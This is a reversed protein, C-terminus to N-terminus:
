SSPEDDGPATEHVAELGDLLRQLRDVRVEFVANRHLQRALPILEPDGLEAEEFQAHYAEIFALDADRSAQWALDSAELAERAEGGLVSALRATLREVEDQWQPEAAEACALMSEPLWDGEEMCGDIRHAIPHSAPAPPAKVREALAPVALLCLALLGSFRLVSLPNFRPQLM